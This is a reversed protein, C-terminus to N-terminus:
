KTKLSSRPLNYINIQREYKHRWYNVLPTTKIRNSDKGSTLAHYLSKWQETELAGAELCVPLVQKMLKASKYITKKTGILLSWFCSLVSIFSLILSLPFAITPLNSLLLHHHLFVKFMWFNTWAPLMQLNSDVCHVQM